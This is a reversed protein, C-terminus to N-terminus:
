KEIFHKDELEPSQGTRAEDGILFYLNPSERLTGGQAKNQKIANAVKDMADEKTEAEAAIRHAYAVVYDVDDGGDTVYVEPEAGEVVINEKGEEILDKEDEEKDGYAVPDNVHASVIVMNILRCQSM